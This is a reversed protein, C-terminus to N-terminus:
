GGSRRYSKLLLKLDDMPDYDRAYWEDLMALSESSLQQTVSSRLGNATIISRRLVPLGQAAGAYGIWTRFGFMVSLCQAFFSFPRKVLFVQVPSTLLMLLSFSFDILRKVRRNYPDSLQYRTENSVSEGSLDRSESGVISESGASHIKIGMGGPLQQINDIIQSFSLKGQCYIVERFSVQEALLKIDELKGITNGNTEDVKVRGIVKNDMNATRLLKMLALYEESSGVVVTNFLEEKQKISNLVHVRVLIWRLLAILILALLAGFLIIARSFRLNEPLLAYSALLVVISITTSRILETRRYWRDYLGAYYSTLLFVLTFAPFSIWLLRNEYNTDPRVYDNWFNKVLWFSLLILAADILPLGIKRIFNGVASLAARFWIAFHIFFNFLGARSGGYHKRVFVSMAKYFMRVYNLSGRRTSEGKFHLISSEAFYYNSYGSEQIRYSLDVDEGYMFFREDFGGTKELAEKRVLMFAGALVDM